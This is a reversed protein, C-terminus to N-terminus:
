FSKKFFKTISYLISEYCGRVGKILLFIIKEKMTNIHSSFLAVNYIAYNVLIIIVIIFLFINIQFIVILYYVMAITLSIKFNKLILLLSILIAAFIQISELICGSIIGILAVLESGETKVPKSGLYVGFLISCALFANHIDTNNQSFIVIPLFGKSFNLFICLLFYSFGLEQMIVKNKIYDLNKGFIKFLIRGENLFFGLAFSIMIEM